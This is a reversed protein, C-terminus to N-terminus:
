CDLVFLVILRFSWFILRKWYILVIVLGMFLMVCVVVLVFLVGENVVVLLLVLIESNSVGFFVLVIWDGLLYLVFMEVLLLKM